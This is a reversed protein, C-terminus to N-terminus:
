VQFGVGKRASGSAQGLVVQPLGQRRWFTAKGWFGGERSSEGGSVERAGGRAWGSETPSRLRKRWSTSDLGLEKSTATVVYSM